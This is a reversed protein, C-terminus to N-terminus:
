PIDCDGYNQKKKCILDNIQVEIKLSLKMAPKRECRMARRGLAYEQVSKKQSILNACDSRFKTQYIM